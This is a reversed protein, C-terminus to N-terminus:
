AMSSGEEIAKKIQMIENKGLNTIERVVCDPLGRLILIEAILVPKAMLDDGLVNTSSKKNDKNYRIVLELYFRCFGIKLVHKAHFYHKQKIFM